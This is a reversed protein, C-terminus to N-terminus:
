KCWDAVAKRARAIEAARGADDLFTRQGDKGVTSIRQGSELATLQSKSSECEKKSTEQEAKEKEAKAQAEDTEKRRKQFELEQEAWKPPTDATPAAPSSFEKVPINLEPPPVDSSHMKGNADRWTYIKGQAWVSTAALVLTLTFALVATKAARKTKCPNCSNPM